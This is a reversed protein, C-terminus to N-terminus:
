KYPFKKLEEDLLFIVIVTILTIIYILLKIVLYLLFKGIIINMKDLYPEPAKISWRLLELLAFFIEEEAETHYGHSKKIQIHLNLLILKINIEVL